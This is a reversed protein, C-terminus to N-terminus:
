RIVLILVLLNYSVGAYYVAHKPFSRDESALIPVLCALFTGAWLWWTGFVPRFYFDYAQPAGATVFGLAAAYLAYQGQGRLQLIGAISVIVLSIVEVWRWEWKSGIAVNAAFVLTCAALWGIILSPNEKRKIIIALAVVDLLLWMAWSASNQEVKNLFLWVGFGASVLFGFVGSYNVWPLNKM